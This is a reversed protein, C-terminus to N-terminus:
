SEGGVTLLVASSTENDRALECSAWDVAKLKQDMADAIRRIADEIEGNTLESQGDASRADARRHQALGDYHGRVAGTTGAGITAVGGYATAMVNVQGAITKVTDCVEFLSGANGCCLSAVAAVVAVVMAVEPPIGLEEAHKAAISAAVAVAAVIATAAGGTAVVAAAAAVATAIAAVDSGLFDSIAGWFGSSEQAEQAQRLAEAAEQRLQELQEYSLNISAEAGNMQKVQSYVMLVLLQEEPSLGHAPTMDPPPLVAHQPAATSVSSLM